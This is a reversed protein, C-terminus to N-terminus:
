PPAPEAATAADGESYSVLGAFDFRTLLVSGDGDLATAPVTCFGRATVRYSRPPLSQDDLATQEVEDFVCRNEGQTGYIREGTEDLLTVNVPVGRASVGMGLDPAAFLIALEGAEPLRGAFRLRMGRGDPRAMGTCELGPEHWNVDAEISGRLRMSLFGANEPLCRETRPETAAPPIAVADPIALHLFAILVAM